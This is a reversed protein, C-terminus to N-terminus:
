EVPRQNTSPMAAVGNLRANIAMALELGHNRTNDTVVSRAGTAKVYELTEKFDAHNSLAVRYARDSYTMLPDDPAAMFASCVVTTGGGSMENRFGDGKRTSGFM